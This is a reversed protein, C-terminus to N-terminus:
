ADAMQPGWHSYAIIHSFHLRAVFTLDTFKPHFFVFQVHSEASSDEANPHDNLSDSLKAYAM